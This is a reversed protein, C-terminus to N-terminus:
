SKGFKHLTSCLLLIVEGVVHSIHAEESPLKVYVRKETLVDSNPQALATRLREATNSRRKASDATIQLRLLLLLCLYAFTKSQPKTM